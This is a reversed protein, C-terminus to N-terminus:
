TWNNWNQRTKKGAADIQWGSGAVFQLECCNQKWWYFICMKVFLLRFNIIIMLRLITSPSSSHLVLVICYVLYNYFLIDFIHSFRYTYKFSSFLITTFKLKNIATASLEICSSFFAVFNFCNSMTKKSTINKLLSITYYIKVM